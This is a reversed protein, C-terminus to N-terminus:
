PKSTEPRRTPGASTREVLYRAEPSQQLIFGASVDKNQWLGYLAQVVQSYNLGLGHHVGEYDSEVDSGLAKILSVLDPESNLMGGIDGSPTRRLLSLKGSPKDKTNSDQEDLPASSITLLGDHSIYFLPVRCKPPQGFLVIRPEKSTKVYILPSGKSLALDLAFEAPRNFKVQRVAPDANKSLGEYARIRVLPNQSDLLTRLFQNALHPQPIQALISAAKLQYPSDDDAAIQGLLSLAVLDDLLAGTRVTYFAVRPDASEFADRLDPLTSKGISELAASIRDAQSKPNSLEAILQKSRKAM